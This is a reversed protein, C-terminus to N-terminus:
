PQLVEESNGEVSIIVDKVEEFQKLTKEIQSRITGVRCSGGMGEQMKASFDVLLVGDKLELNNVTVGSNIATFYGGDKEASSPGELLKQLIERYQGEGKTIKKELPYVLSCDLSGPNFIHNAFFVQATIIGKEEELGKDGWRTIEKIPSIIPVCPTDPADSSPYGHKQWVGDICIWNDEGSFLRLGMMVVAGLVVLILLLYIFRKM